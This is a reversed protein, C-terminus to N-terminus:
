DPLRQRCLGARWGGEAFPLQSDHKEDEIWVSARVEM